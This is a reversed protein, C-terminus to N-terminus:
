LGESRVRVFLEQRALTSALMARFAEGIKGVRVILEDTLLELAALAAM